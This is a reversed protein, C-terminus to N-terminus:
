SSSASRAFGDISAGNSQWFAYLNAAILSRSSAVAIIDTHPDDWILNVGGAGNVPYAIEGAALGAAWWIKKENKDTARDYAAKMDSATPYRYYDVEAPINVRLTCTLSDSYGAVAAPSQGNSGTQSCSSRLWAPAYSLLGSAAPTSAGSSASSGSSSFHGSYGALACVAIAAVAPVKVQLPVKRM